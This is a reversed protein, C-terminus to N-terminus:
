QLNPSDLSARVASALKQPDYPKQLYNLGSRAMLDKGSVDEGYGSTFIVKLDPREKRLTEALESGNPHAPM